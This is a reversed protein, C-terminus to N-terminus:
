VNQGTMPKRAFALVMIMCLSLITEVGTVYFSEFLIHVVFFLLVGSAFGVDSQWRNRYDRLYQKLAWFLAMVFVACGVLGTNLAVDLYGNHAHLVLLGLRDAMERVREESWFSGYGYGLLPRAALLSLCETWISLRTGGIGDAAVTDRDLTIASTLDRGTVGPFALVLAGTILACILCASAILKVVSRKSWRSTGIFVGVVALAAMSDRSQTLILLTMAVFLACYRMVHLYRAQINGSVLCIIFIACVTGQLNPYLTGSFRYGSRFPHFTSLSLECAVGLIMALGTYIMAAKRIGALGLRPAIAACALWVLLGDRLEKLSVPTIRSWIVSLAMWSITFLVCFRIGSHTRIGTRPKLRIALVVLLVLVVYGARRLPDVMTRMAHLADVDLEPTVTFFISHGGFAYICFALM